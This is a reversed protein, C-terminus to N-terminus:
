LAYGGEGAIGDKEKRDNGLLSQRVQEIADCPDKSTAEVLHGDSRMARAFWTGNLRGISILPTAKGKM